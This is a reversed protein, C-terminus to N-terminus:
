IRDLAKAVKILKVNLQETSEKMQEPTWDQIGHGDTKFGLRGAEINDTVLKQVEHTDEIDPFVFEHIAKTMDLGCSDMVEFPAMIGLRMGFGYKIAEDVAAPSAIGHEVISIAERFLCHQLRNALFGPVDKEVVVPHKGAEKLANYTKNVTEESVHVTKVVEVLPILYAPNWFHTGIIRDKHVAKEGIMTISLASTNSALVTEPPCIEDLKKFMEQKVQLNEVIAEFVIDAFDAIDEIDPTYTVRGMIDPIDEKKIVDNAALFNLNAEMNIASDGREMYNGVYVIKVEHGKTAFLQGIGVGMKGGGIIAIREKSM